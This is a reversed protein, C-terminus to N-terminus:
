RDGFVLMGAAIVTFTGIILSLILVLWTVPGFVPDIAAPVLGRATNQLGNVQTMVIIFAMPLAVILGIMSAIRM